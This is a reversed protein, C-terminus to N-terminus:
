IFYILFYISWITLYDVWNTKWYNIIFQYDDIIIYIWYAIIYIISAYKYIKLTKNISRDLEKM